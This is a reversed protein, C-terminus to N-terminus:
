RVWRALYQKITATLEVDLERMVRETLEFWIQDREVLTLGEPVTQSRKAVASATGVTEGLSNVIEVRMEITADYRAAQETTFAGQIGGTTELPTETDAANVLLVHAIDHSGVPLLRDAAWRRAVVTPRVPFLHEVNPPKGPPVYDQVYDVDSVGLSIPTLHSFTIEPFRPTPDPTECAALAAVAALLGCGLVGTFLRKMAPREDRHRTGADDRPRRRSALCSVALGVRWAIELVQKESAPALSVDVLSRPRAAALDREAAAM